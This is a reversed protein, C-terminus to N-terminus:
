AQLFGGVAIGDKAVFLIMANLNDELWSPYLARYRLLSTASNECLIDLPLLSHRFPQNNNTPIRCPHRSGALRTALTWGVVEFDQSKLPGGLPCPAPFRM